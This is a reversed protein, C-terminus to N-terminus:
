CTVLKEGKYSHKEKKAKKVEGKYLARCRSEYDNIFATIEDKNRLQFTKEKFYTKLDEVFSEFDVNKNSDFTLAEVTEDDLLVEVIGGIQYVELKDRWVKFSMMKYVYEKNDNLKGGVLLKCNYRLGPIVGNWTTEVVAKNGRKDDFYAKKVKGDRVFTLMKYFCKEMKNDNINFM